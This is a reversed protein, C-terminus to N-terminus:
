QAVLLKLLQVGKNTSVKILYLGSQNLQYNNKGNESAQYILRCSSDIISIQKALTGDPISLMFSGDTSPNPYASISVGEEEDIDTILSATFNLNTLDASLPNIFISTPSFTYGATQPTITGQWNEPLTISFQGNENTFINEPFGILPAGELPLSSTQISGSVQYYEVPNEIATATFLINVSDKQLNTISISSPRFTFGQAVPTIIGSWGAQLQAVFKKDEGMRVTEPFGQLEVIVSEDSQILFEGQIVFTGANRATFQYAYISTTVPPIQKKAPSVEMGEVVVEIEGSWRHPVSVVFAGYQNTYLIEDFGRVEANEIPLGNVDNVFGWVAHKGVYTGVFDQNTRNETLNEIVLTQPEFTHQGYQPRISGSFNKPLKISYNGEMNSYSQYLESHLTAMLPKGLDDTIRGSIYVPELMSRNTGYIRDDLFQSMFIRGYSTEYFFQNEYQLTQSIGHGVNFKTWTVGKDTSVYSGGNSVSASISSYWEGNAAFHISNLIGTLWWTNSIGARILRWSSQEDLNDRHKIMNLTVAFNTVVGSVSFIVSDDPTISIGYVNSTKVTGLNRAELSIKQWTLGKNDSIFLGGSNNVNEDGLGLYIRDHADVAIQECYLAIDGLGSNRAEWNILDGNNYFVGDGEYGNVTSTGTIFFFESSSTEAIRMVPYDTTVKVSDWNLGKNNSYYIKGEGGALIKGSQSAYVSYIIGARLSREWTFGADGSRWVGNGTGTFLISDQLGAFSTKANGPFAPIISWYDQSFAVSSLSLFFLSGVVRLYFFSLRSM